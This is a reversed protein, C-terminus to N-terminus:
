DQRCTRGRQTRPRHATFEGPHRELEPADMRAPNIRACAGPGRRALRDRAAWVGEIVLRTSEWGREARARRGAGPSLRAMAVRVGAAPTTSHTCMLTCMLLVMM